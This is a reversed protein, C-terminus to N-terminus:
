HIAASVKAALDPPFTQLGHTAKSHVAAIQLAEDSSTVNKIEFSCKMGVDACRFNAM